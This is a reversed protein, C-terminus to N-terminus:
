PFRPWSLQHQPQWGETCRCTWRLLVLSRRVIYQKPQVNRWLLFFHFFQSRHNTSEQQRRAATEELRESGGFVDLEQVRRRSVLEERACSATTSRGEGGAVAGTGGGGERHGGLRREEVQRGREGGTAAGGGHGRHGRDGCVRRRRGGQGGERCGGRFLLLEDIGTHSGAGGEQQHEAPRGPAQRPPHEVSPRAAGLWFQRPLLKTPWLFVFFPSLFGPTRPTNAPPHPPTRPSAEAASVRQCIFHLSTVRLPRPFTRPLPREHAMQRKSPTPRPRCAVPGQRTPETVHQHRPRLLVGTPQVSRESVSAAFVNREKEVFQNM